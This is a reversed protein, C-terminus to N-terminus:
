YNGFSYTKRLIVNGRPIFERIYLLKLGHYFTYVNYLNIFKGRTYDPISYTM